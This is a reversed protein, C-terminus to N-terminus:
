RINHRITDNFLVVDQPVVAMAARLSALTVTSIDTGDVRVVGARPDWFRLLLRLVQCLPPHSPPHTPLHAPRANPPAGRGARRGGAWACVRM